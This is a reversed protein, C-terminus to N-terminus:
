EGMAMRDDIRVADMGERIHLRSLLDLGATRIGDAFMEDSPAMEEIAKVIEPLMVALDRDTLQNLYPAVCGRVVSDDNQLLARLAPYLLGRDVGELSNDLITPTSTGPSPTFLATALFLDIRGRPDDPNQSAALALLDNVSAKRAEPGLGAIASCALSQMWPDPDKLLARLQPAAADARSGLEVIAVCAGYRGYRDSGALLKQLAPVFDGKRRGLAQASRLRMAPSWSSLGALLEDTKRQDYGNKGSSPTGTAGPPM